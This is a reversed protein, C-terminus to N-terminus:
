SLRLAKIRAGCAVNKWFMSTTIRAFLGSRTNKGKRFGMSRDAGIFEAIM